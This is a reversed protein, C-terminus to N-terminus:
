GASDYTVYTIPVGLRQAIARALEPGVGRPAGGGPDKQAIVPNGLNIGARLVGTPAFQARLSDHSTMPMTCAALALGALSLFHRIMARM